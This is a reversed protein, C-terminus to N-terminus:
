KTLGHLLLQTVADTRDTLSETKENQDSDDEIKRVYFSQLVGQLTASITDATKEVDMDRFVGSKVGNRLNDQIRVIYDSYSQMFIRRHEEKFESRVQMMIEIFDRNNDFYQFYTKVAAAVKVPPDTIPHVNKAFTQHMEMCGQEFVAIFLSKKDKFYRYITGKGVNLDNAIQDIKTRAFGYKAFIPMAAALIQEKRRLVLDNKRNEKVADM